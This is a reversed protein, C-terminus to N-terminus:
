FSKQHNVELVRPMRPKSKPEFIRLMFQRNKRLIHRTGPESDIKKKKRLTNKYVHGHCVVFHQPRHEAFFRRQSDDSVIEDKVHFSIVKSVHLSYLGHYRYLMYIRRTGTSILHAIPFTMFNIAIPVASETIFEREGILM